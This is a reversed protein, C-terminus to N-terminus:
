RVDTVRGAALVQSVAELKLVDLEKQMIADMSSSSCGLGANGSSLQGHQPLLRERIVPFEEVQVIFFHGGVDDCPVSLWTLFWRSEIEYELLPVLLLFLIFTCNHGQVEM